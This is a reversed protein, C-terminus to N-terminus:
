ARVTRSVVSNQFAVTNRELTSPAWPTAKTKSELVQHPGPSRQHQIDPTLVPGNGLLVLSGPAKGAVPDSCLFHHAANSLHFKSTRGSSFDLSSSAFILHSCKRRPAIGPRAEVSEPSSRFTWSQEGSRPLGVPWHGAARQERPIGKGMQLAQARTVLRLGLLPRAGCVSGCLSVRICRPGGSPASIGGSPGQSGRGPPRGAPGPGEWRDM